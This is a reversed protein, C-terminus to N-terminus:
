MGPSDMFEGPRGFAGPQDKLKVHLNQIGQSFELRQQKGEGRKKNQLPVYFIRSIYCCLFEEERHYQLGSAFLEEPLGTQIGQDQLKIGQKEPRRSKLHLNKGTFIWASYSAALFSMLILFFKQSYALIQIM